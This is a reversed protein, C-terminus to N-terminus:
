LSIIKRQLQKFDQLWVFQKCYELRSTILYLLGDIMSRYLTKDITLSNEEKSLKCSTMMPTTVLKSDEMNFKKLM